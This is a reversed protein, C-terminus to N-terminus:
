FKKDIICAILDQKLQEKLLYESNIYGPIKNTKKTCLKSIIDGHDKFSFQGGFYIMHDTSESFGGFIKKSKLIIDNNHVKLDTILFYKSLIKKIIKLCIDNTIKLTKPIVIMFPLDSEEGVLTGGSYGLEFVKIGLNNCQELDLDETGQFVYAISSTPFYLGEREEAIISNYYDITSDEESLEFVNPKWQKFSKLNYNSNFFSSIM